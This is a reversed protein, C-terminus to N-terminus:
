SEDCVELMYGVVKDTADRHAQELACQAMVGLREPEAVMGAIVEALYEPTLQTQPVLLAAGADALARANHTQHDDIAHPLPVLVAPTGTVALEAITLAGARCIVLDAWQYAASMDDIFPLVDVSVASNSYASATLELHDRGCQHRVVIISRLSAPLQSLGLPVRQNLPLSGLSGGLVLLRLPRAASFNKPQPASTMALIASRVPNGVVIPRRGEPFAHAFGCLVRKAFPALYRNTTGAVANQEHIVLPYGFLSAALGAPGAAYGGMGLLVRPRLRRLLVIAKIFAVLVRGVASVVSMPNKGRLGRVPLTHLPYGAAPVVRAELGRQTGLWHVMWGSQTLADAVALAPYVHGGTGGAMILAVPPLTNPTDFAVM